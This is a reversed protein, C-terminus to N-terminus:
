QDTPQTVTAPLSAKREFYRMLFVGGVVMLGGLAQSPLLREKFIFFAILATLAPELTLVMNAVSSPLLALSNNYFGFGLVTPGLALLILYFWGMYQKGLMFLEAPRAAQGPLFKFPLLNAILLYGAAFAFAFLSSTWPNLGRQAASRGLLSYVAYCIGALIGVAFGVGTSQFNAGALSALTCGTLSILIAVIKPLRLSEHLFRWGLLATFAASSYLLVTAISAGNQVVSITWFVNFVALALGFIAAFGLDHRDIKLLKPRILRLAIFLILASFFDRWFALILAPIHYNTTLVQILIAVNALMFVAAFAYLYGTQQKKAPTASEPEM